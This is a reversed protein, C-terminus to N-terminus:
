GGGSETDQSRPRDPWNHAPGAKVGYLFGDAQGALVRLRQWDPRQNRDSADAAEKIADSLTAIVIRARIDDTM